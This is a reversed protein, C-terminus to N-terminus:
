PSHVAKVAVLSPGEGGRMSAEEPSMSKAAIRMSEVVVKKNGAVEKLTKEV